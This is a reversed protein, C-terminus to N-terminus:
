LKRARRERQPNDLPAKLGNVAYIAAEIRDLRDVVDDTTKPVSISNTVFGGPKYRYESVNGNEYVRTTEKEQQEEGISGLAALLEGVEPTVHALPICYMQGDLYVAVHTDVLTNFVRIDTM